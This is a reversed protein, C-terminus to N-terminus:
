FFFFSNQNLADGLPTALGLIRELIFGYNIVSVTEKYRLFNKAWSCSM